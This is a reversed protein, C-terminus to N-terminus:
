WVTYGYILGGGEEIVSPTELGGGLDSRSWNWVMFAECVADALLM